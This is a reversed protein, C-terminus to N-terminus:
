QPRPTTGAPGGPIGEMGGGSSTPVGAGPQQQSHAMRLLSQIDPQGTPQGGAQPPANHPAGQVQTKELNIEPVYERPQDFGFERLTHIMMADESKIVDILWQKYEPTAQANSLIAQIKSATKEFHQDLVGKLLMTNQKEVEKNTSATAARIPIEVKKDLYDQLAEQLITADLGFMNGDTGMKGYLKACLSIIKVHTHKFDSTRINNRSNGDQMVALTGMSGYQGKKNVQGAGMGAVAPGVGSREDAQRMALEEESIGGDGLDSQQKLLELEDPGAPIVCFPYIQINKDLNPNSSRLIGTIAMTKADIRQNHMTSIEEQSNELIDALGRGYIGRSAIDFKTPIIACSNDPMFNFVRRMCTNSAYHYSWIVHAKVKRPGQKNPNPIFWWFYCEYIDWEALINTAPANIGKKTQVKQKNVDPGHRDPKDIIEAVKDKDYFGAFAREELDHKQLRRKHIKLRSKEWTPAQPDGMVDEFELNEVKPGNYMTSYALRTKKSKGTGVMEVESVEMRHEPVVKFFHTGLKAGDTFGVTEVRYLDLGEPDWARNDIFQELIRSKEADQHPDKSKILYRFYALPMVAWILGIVRAAMDDVHQGVVQVILNSANPWPFSKTKDRPKGEYLRRFEPIKQEFLNQYTEKFVRISERLWSEIEGNVDEGFDATVLEMPKISRVTPVPDSAFQNDTQAM